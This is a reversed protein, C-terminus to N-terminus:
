QLFEILWPIELLYQHFGIAIFGLITALLVFPTGSFEIKSEPKLPDPQSTTKIAVGGLKTVSLNNL